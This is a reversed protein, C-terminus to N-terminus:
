VENFFKFYRPQENTWMSFFLTFVAENVMSDSEMNQHFYKSFNLATPIHKHSDFKAHTADSESRSRSRFKEPCMQHAFEFGDEKNKFFVPEM